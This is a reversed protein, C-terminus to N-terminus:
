SAGTGCRLFQPYVRFLAAFDDAVVLGLRGSGFDDLAPEAGAELLLVYDFGCVRNIGAGDLAHHPVM